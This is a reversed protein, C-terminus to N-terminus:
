ENANIFQNLYYHFARIPVEEDSLEPAKVVGSEMARQMGEMPLMDERQIDRGLSLAYEQAILDGVSVPQRVYVRREFYTENVSIPWYLMVVYWDWAFNINFNPMLLLIDFLWKADKKPNVSEPLLDVSHRPQQKFILQETKTPIFDPNDGHGTVYRHMSPLQIEEFRCFPNRKGSTLGRATVAHLSPSHFVEVADTMNKWNTRL